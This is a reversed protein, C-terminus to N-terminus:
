QTAEKLAPYLSRYRQWRESYARVLPRSPAISATIRPPTCVAFPGAGTAAILGLRAAGFAAGIDGAAPVDIPIGLVTALIELWLKSRAGGGVATARNVKTGAAKLAELCDRFAFAVGDLVAHVLDRRESEASLGVFAGRIAADNHPTREGSLYPLFTIPSPGSVRKGVVSILDGARADLARSLWELSGAASLIVGMQHWTRPVAHCFAHVAGEVNPSFRANSVFLVGSTGLSVFATGPKVTGTGCASAANDGGGGAVVPARDM